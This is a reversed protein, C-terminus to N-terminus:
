ISATEQRHKQGLRQSFAQVQQLMNREQELNEELLPLADEAGIAGALSIAAEYAAIEHHETAAAAGLAVLDLVDPQVGDAASAAFGKYEAELGEVAPAPLAEPRVGLADFVRELNQIQRRTEEAHREFGTALEPNNAEKQMRPLMSEIAKETKLLVGLKYVFLDNPDTVKVAM